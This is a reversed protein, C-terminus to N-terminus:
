NSSLIRDIPIGSIFMHMMNEIENINPAYKSFIFNHYARPCEYYLCPVNAKLLAKAYLDADDHLPDYEASLIFTKPLLFNTTSLLPSVDPNLIDKEERIYNRIYNSVQEKTLTPTTPYKKYSETQMRGDTVPTVLIQGAIKPSQLDRAKKSLAAAINAGSSEGFIYIRDKDIQWFECARYVWSLASYCDEIPTPFRCMDGALRYDAAVVLANLREALHKCYHHYFQWNIAGWGGGHIFFVLSSAERNKKMKEYTYVTLSMDNSTPVIFTREIVNKTHPCIKGFIRYANLPSLIEDREFKYQSYHLTKLYRKYNKGEAM